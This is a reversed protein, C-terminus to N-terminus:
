LVKFKKDSVSEDEDKNITAESAESIPRKRTFFDSIKKNESFTGVVPKLPDIPEICQKCDFSTSNMLPTVPYIRLELTKLKDILSRLYRVTSVPSCLDPNIWEFIDEPDKFLVPMRDHLKAVENVAETTIVTYSFMTQEKNVSFLGAMLMLPEGTLSIYYPIKKGNHQKWEYFGEAVIVCRRRHKICDMYSPRELISEARANTTAFRNSSANSVFSPILGWRMVQVIEYNTASNVKPHIQSSAIIVPSQAPRTTSIHVQENTVHYESPGAPNAWAFLGPDLRLSLRQSLKYPGPGRSQDHAALVRRIKVPLPVSMEFASSVSSMERRLIECFRSAKSDPAVAYILEDHLHLVLHATIGVELRLASEIRIMALKTIDAASGQIMSNVAQREAKAISVSQPPNPALIKAVKCPSPCKSPNQDARSSPKLDNLLRVRGSMTRISGQEHASLITQRIFQAVGSFSTMFTDILKQAKQLTTNNQAALSAPGMGYIVAYCLQKAQQREEATILSPDSRKLWHAALMKFADESTSQLMSLLIADQSLHALIRLELHCFDASVLISGEPAKFASRPRIMLDDKKTFLNLIESISSPWEVDQPSPTTSSKQPAVPSPPRHRLSSWSFRVENPVAQLNPHLSVIRGTATRAKYVCGICVDGEEKKYSTMHRDTAMQCADVLGGFSKELVGHIRRWEMVISPLPHMHILQSLTENNTPMQRARLPVGVGLRSKKARKSAAMEAALSTYVPLHLRNYLVNAVERPSALEFICGVLAHALRSLDNCLEELRTQCTSLLAFDLVFGYRESNALLAATSLELNLAPSTSSPSPILSLLYCQAASNLVDPPFPMEQQFSSCSSMDVPNLKSWDSLQTPPDLHYGLSLLADIVKSANPVMNVLRPRGSDPDEMWGAIGPDYFREVASTDFNLLENCVRFWWKLDWVAIRLGRHSLISRLGELLDTNASNFQLWFVTHQHLNASTLALGKLELCVGSNGGGHCSSGSCGDHWVFTGKSTAVRNCTERDVLACWHLQIALQHIGTRCNSNLLSKFERQFTSWLKSTKTVDVLSFIPKRTSIDSSTELASSPSVQVPDENRSEKFSSSGVPSSFIDEGSNNVSTSNANADQALREMMSFTMTDNMAAAEEDLNSAFLSNSSADILSNDEDLPTKIGKNSSPTSEVAQNQGTKYSLPTDPQTDAFIDESIAEPIDVASSTEAVSNTISEPSTRLLSVRTQAKPNTMSLSLKRNVVSLGTIKCYDRKRVSKIANSAPTTLSSANSHFSFPSKKKSSSKQVSSSTFSSKRKSRITLSRKRLKSAPTSMNQPLDVGYNSALDDRLVEKAMSTLLPALDIESVASGDPLIISRSSRQDKEEKASIFPNTRQLVREIEKPRARAVSAVSTFGAQYLARARSNNLLPSLRILDLLENSVGFFLRMQFGSLLREMHIWGLRNCFVTVMGAYTSAQQTLSQLLGRNIGFREAVQALTEECILRHLALALYFRRLQALSASEQGRRSAAQKGALCRMLGREEVGVLEAVHREPPSLSQYIDLYRLWDISNDLNVYIPTVLYVLHLDTDLAVSRLARSLEAFVTLGDLPGLASALVARGLQTPRLAEEDTELRIVLGSEFLVDLCASLLSDTETPPISASSRRQSRRVAPSSDSGSAKLVAALLTSDLYIKADSVNEVIGSAIVELLARRLSSEPTGSRTLLCSTVRPTGAALLQRVKPLDRPKCLLVAEGCVDIGKRGARGVMQKYNLYDLTQGHFFLTRIIVRRAPLNVGSSLTSTAILLRLIGKRFALELIDREEITLGAHHFAVGFRICRSLVPDLGVPSRELQQLCQSLGLEDLHSRLIRGPSNPDSSLWESQPKLYPEVLFYIQRAMSEALQECWQKTSCFVLAAFGSLLTDFCLESVGDDNEIIPLGERSTKFLEFESANVTELREHTDGEGPIVRYVSDKTYILETLPIPRFDTTYVVAQLWSGLVSITSLSASMGIIQIKEDVFSQSLQSSRSTHNKQLRGHLLLKTLLLELLYGRHPDSVLHMEDVVVIGLDSLREEEVLRNILNNAKEITCVAIRVSALGGAPSSGGMFGGVRVGLPEFIRQLSVMKERSVSVYPLIIIAKKNTTLIRKLTILEAVLTKGASTPACYILNQVGDLVGPLKLCEAQWPFMSTIGIEAYKDFIPKPLYIVENTVEFNIGARINM